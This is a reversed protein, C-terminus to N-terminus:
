RTSVGFYRALRAALTARDVGGLWEEPAQGAMAEISAADLLAPEGARGHLFHNPPLAVPREAEGALLRNLFLCAGFDIIWFRGDAGRLINPNARTRDVNILAADIQAIRRLLPEPLTELEDGRVPSADEIYGIGLNWGGSRQVMEDFEDTGAQWPFDHALFLPRAAPAPAGLLRAICLGLFDALLGREGAGAAKLKLLWREGSATRAAAPAGGGHRAVVHEIRTILQAPNPM